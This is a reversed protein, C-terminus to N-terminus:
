YIGNANEFEIAETKTLFFHIGPACEIFRNREFNIINITEGVRYVFSPEYLSQATCEKIVNGCLDQIELVKAKDCRCKRTLASTRRAEEPILLKVIRNNRVKKWGVFSGDSPPTSCILKNMKTEELYAQELDVGDLRVATLDAVRLNAYRLNALRLDARAFIASVAEIKNLNAEILKAETLNAGSLDANSLCANSLNAKRLNAKQLFAYILYANTLTANSLNANRLDVNYMCAYDLYAGQLQTNKFNASTFDTQTLIAGRLNAGSLDIGSLTMGTLDARKGGKHDLWKQHEELIKKLKQKTIRKYTM